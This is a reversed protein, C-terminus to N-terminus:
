VMGHEYGYMEQHGAFMQPEPVERQVQTEPDKYGKFVREQHFMRANHLSDAIEEKSWTVPFDEGMPFHKSM